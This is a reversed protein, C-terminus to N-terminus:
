SGDAWVPNRQQNTWMLRHSQTHNEQQGSVWCSEVIYMQVDKLQTCRYMQNSSFTKEKEHYQEMIMDKGFDTTTKFKREKTPLQVEIEGFVGIDHKNVWYSM